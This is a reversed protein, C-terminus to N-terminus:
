SYISFFPASYIEKYSEKKKVLFSETVGNNTKACIMSDTYMNEIIRFCRGTIGIENLKLLLADHWITDFAKNFDVSCSYLRANKKTITSDIIKKLIFIHDTTRSLKRFGAQEKMLLNKQELYKEIRRNIIQCFLKGLCSSLTIGRYNSPNSPDGSKFIPVNIGDKWQSPYIGAQLIINFLNCVIGSIRTISAKLIEHSIGDKGPAKKQKQPNKASELVESVTITNDLDTNRTNQKIKTLERRIHEKRNADTAVEQGILNQLHNIWKTTNITHKHSYSQKDTNKLKSLIKWVEQPDNELAMNLNSM